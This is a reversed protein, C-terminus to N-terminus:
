ASQFVLLWAVVAEAWLTQPQSPYQLTSCMFIVLYQDFELVASELM